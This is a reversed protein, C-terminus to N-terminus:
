LFIVNTKLTNNRLSKPWSPLSCLFKSAWYSYFPQAIVCRFTRQRAGPAVSREPCATRTKGQQLTSVLSETEPAGTGSANSARVQFLASFIPGAQLPASHGFIPTSIWRKPPNQQNKKEEPFLLVCLEGFKRWDPGHFNSFRIKPTPLSRSQSVGDRGKQRCTFHWLSREYSVSAPPFWSSVMLNEQTCPLM